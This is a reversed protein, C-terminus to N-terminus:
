NIYKPRHMHLTHRTNCIIGVFFSLSEHLYEVIIIIIM